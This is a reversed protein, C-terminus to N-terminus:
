RFRMRSHEPCAPCARKAGVLFCVRKKCLSHRGLTMAFSLIVDTTPYMVLPLTSPKSARRVLPQICCNVELKQKTGSLWNSVKFKRRYKWIDWILQNGQTSYSTSKLRCCRTAQGCEAMSCIAYIRPSKFPPQRHATCCCCVSAAAGSDSLHSVHDHYQCFHFFRNYHYNSL